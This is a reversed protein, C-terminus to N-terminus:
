NRREDWRAHILNHDDRYPAITQIKTKWIKALDKNTLQWNLQSLNRFKYKKYLLYVTKWIINMRKGRFDRGLFM